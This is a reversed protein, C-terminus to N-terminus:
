FGTPPATIVCSPAGPRWDGLLLLLLFWARPDRPRAAAVWFGLLFCFYPSLYLYFFPLIGLFRTYSALGLAVARETTNGNPGSSRVKLALRDGPRHQRVAEGFVAPGKLPQGDVALLFDGQKLGAELAEPELFFIRAIAGPQDTDEVIFPEGAPYAGFLGPFAFYTFRALYISAAVLVVALAVYPARVPGAPERVSRM